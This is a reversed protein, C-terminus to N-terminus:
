SATAESEEIRSEHIHLWQVGEAESLRCVVSIRAGLRNGDRVQWEEYRVVVIGEVVSWCVLDEVWRTTVPDRGREERLYALLSDRDHFEGSPGIIRLGPALQDAFEALAESGEGAGRIWRELAAEAIEISLAAQECPSNAVEDIGM